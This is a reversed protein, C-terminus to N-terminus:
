EWGIRAIARSRVVDRLIGHGEVSLDGLLLMVNVIGVGALLGHELM